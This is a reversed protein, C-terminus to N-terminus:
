RLDCLHQCIQSAKNYNEGGVLQTIADDSCINLAIHIRTELILPAIHYNNLCITSKDRTSASPSALDVNSSNVVNLSIQSPFPLM